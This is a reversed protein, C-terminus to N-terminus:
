QCPESACTISTGPAEAVLPFTAPRVDPFHSKATEAYEDVASLARDFTTLWVIGHHRQPIELELSATVIQQFSEGLCSADHGFRGSDCSYAPLMKMSQQCQM